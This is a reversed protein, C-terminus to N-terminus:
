GLIDRVQDMIDPIITGPVRVSINRSTKRVRPLKLTDATIRKRIVRTMDPCLIAGESKKLSGASQLVLKEMAKEYLGQIFEKETQLKQIEEKHSSDDNPVETAFIDGVGMLLWDSSVKPYVEKIKAYIEVSPNKTEGRIVKNIRETGIELDKALRYSTVGLAEILREFKEQETM